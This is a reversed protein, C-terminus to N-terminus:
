VDIEEEQRGDEPHDYGIWLMYKSTIGGSLKRLFEHPAHKADLFILTVDAHRGVLRQMDNQQLSMLRIISSANGKIQISDKRIDFLKKCKFDQLRGRMRKMFHMDDFSNKYNVKGTDESYIFAGSYIYGSFTLGQQNLLAACMLIVLPLYQDNEVAGHNCFADLRTFQWRPNQHMLWDATDNLLGACTMTDTMTDPIEGFLLEFIRETKWDHVPTNELYPMM